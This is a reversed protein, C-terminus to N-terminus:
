DGKGTTRWLVSVEVAEVEAPELGEVWYEGSLTDGPQFTWGETELLITIQPETSM